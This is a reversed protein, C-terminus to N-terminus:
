GLGVKRMAADQSRRARAAVAENAKATRATDFVICFYHACWSFGPKVVPHGCAQWGGLGPDGKIFRCTNGDPFTNPECLFPPPPTVPEPVVLRPKPAARKRVYPKKASEGDHGGRSSLGLRHVKGCIANRSVKWDFARSIQGASLGEDWYSRLREVHSEDGWFGKANNESKEGM